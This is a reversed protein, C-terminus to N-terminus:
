CSSSIIFVDFDDRAWDYLDPENNEFTNWGSILEHKNLINQQKKINRRDLTIRSSEKVLKPLSKKDIKMKMSLM